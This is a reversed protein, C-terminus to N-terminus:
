YSQLESENQIFTFILDYQQSLKEEYKTLRPFYDRNKPIGIIAAHEFKTSNLKEVISKEM